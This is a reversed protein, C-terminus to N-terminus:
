AVGKRRRLQRVSKNFSGFRGLFRSYFGAGAPSLLVQDGPSTVTTAVSVAHDISEVETIPFEPDLSERVKDSVSGPFLILHHALRTIHNALLDYGDEAKTSGGLILLARGNPFSKLAALTAWPTTSALDNYYAVGHVRAIMQLRNKVGRFDKLAARISELSVGATYACLAAILGNRLNHIGPLALEEPRCLFVDDGHVRMRLEGHDSLYAGEEDDALPQASAWLVDSKAVDAFACVWVDDRNLIAVQGAEQLEVIRRKAAFYEELGGHEAVHDPALSTVAAIPPAGHVDRLQRNSMELTLLANEPLDLIASLSQQSFLDNGSVKAVREKAAMARVWNCTTTKGNTGTIGLLQCPALDLYLDTMQAFPVVGFISFLKPTNAKYARWNQGVFVIDANEVDKLYEDGTYIKLQPLAMLKEFAEGRQEKNLSVHARAFSQELSDSFDHGIMQLKSGLRGSFLEALATGETGTIGVIHITWPEKHSNPHGRLASILDKYVTNKTM